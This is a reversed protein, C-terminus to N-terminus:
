DIAAAEQQRQGSERERRLRQQLRAGGRRDRDRREIVDREVNGVEFSRNIEVLPQEAHRNLRPLSRGADLQPDAGSRLKEVEGAARRRRADIVHADADLVEVHVAHQLHEGLVAHRLAVLAARHLHLDRQPLRVLAARLFPCGFHVDAIGIADVHLQLVPAVAAAAAHEAVDAAQDLRRRLLSQDRQVRVAVAGDERGVRLSRVSKIPLQEAHAVARILARRRGRERDTRADVEQHEGAAARSAPARVGGRRTRRADVM